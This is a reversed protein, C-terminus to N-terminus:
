KKPLNSLWRLPPLKKMELAKAGYSSTKRHSSKRKVLFPPFFCRFRPSGVPIQVALRTMLVLSDQPGNEPWLFADGLIDIEYSPGFLVESRTGFILPGTATGIIM